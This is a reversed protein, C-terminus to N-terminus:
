DFLGTASKLQKGSLLVSKEVLVEMADVTYSKIDETLKICSLETCALIVCDCQLNQVFDNVLDNFEQIETTIGGKVKTYIIDMIQAQQQENPLVLQIDYKDCAKKYIGSRVTGDTAMLAVKANVGHKKYIVKATEEIMHIIPITTMAQMEEYYYHSTNCPIAIHKVGATELLQFDTKVARLFADGTQNIIAETRDPLTAHNLIVTNIHDQDKEAVTKEVLKDFFVATAKSGMGGIIGLKMEEM